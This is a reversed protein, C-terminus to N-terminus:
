QRCFKNVQLMTGVLRRLEVGVIDVDNLTNIAESSLVGHDESLTIHYVDGTLSRFIRVFSEM